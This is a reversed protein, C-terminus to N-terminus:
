ILFNPIGTYTAPMTMVVADWPNSYILDGYLCYDTLFKYGNTSRIPYFKHGEPSEQVKFGKNTHFTLHKPNIGLIVKDTMENIAVLKVSGKVSGVSIESFGAYDVRSGTNKFAGSGLTGGAGYELAALVSSFHKYSMLFTTPNAHRQRAKALANFLQQLIDDSGTILNSGGATGSSATGGDWDAADYVCAQTFTSATKTQGFVTAPADLWGSPLLQDLLSTFGNNDSGSLTNPLYVKGGTATVTLATGAHATGSRATSTEVLGTNMNISIIYRVNETGATDRLLVKQGIRLREPNSVIIDGYDGTTTSGVDPVSVIEALEQTNLCSVSVVEKMYNLTQDIQDPLLKLFNQETIKGHEELDRSNFALTAWCEKYSSISGRAYDADAIDAEATLAGMQVSSAIATQFPIILNGGLWGEKITANKFLWTKDAFEQMLLDYTLYENIMDSYNDAKLTSFATM